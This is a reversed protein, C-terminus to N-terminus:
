SVGSAREAIGRQTIQRGEWNDMIQGFSKRISNQFWWPLSRINAVFLNYFGPEIVHGSTGSLVKNVIAEAVTDVHLSPGFFADSRVGFGQFM